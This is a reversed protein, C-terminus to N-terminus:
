FFGKSPLPAGTLVNAGLAAAKLSGSNHSALTRANRWHRDLNKVRKTASAGGVDFLRSANKLTLEDVILKAKASAAAADQALTEAPRGADRAATLEDLADAAALVVTEAAFAAASIEGVIGQLLPDDAARPVAAYYFHRDKRSGLLAVADDLVNRLIGAVIGTVLLQALTNAYPLGYGVAPTDLVVEDPEVRVNRLVTTGSGTLRQGAGDWDDVLEVGERTVPIIASAALDGPAAARVIVHDAYLTGTSYYKTGDLRYGDGDPTLRTEYPAGGITASSLETNGLGFIAGSAVLTVWKERNPARPSRAFRDVFAFHNRLAHAVNPDAAALRIVTGLLQRLSIGYGGEAPSLRLAGIRNQRILDIIAYPHIRERDREAAGEAISAFLESFDPAQVSSTEAFRQAPIPVNM